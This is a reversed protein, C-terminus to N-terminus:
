SKPYHPNEPIFGSCGRTRRYLNRIMSSQGFHGFLHIAQHYGLLHPRSAAREGYASAARALLQEESTERLLELLRHLCRTLEGLNAAFNVPM